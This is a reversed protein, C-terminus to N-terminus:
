IYINQFLIHHLGLVSSSLMHLIDQFSKYILYHEDEAHHAQLCLPFFM